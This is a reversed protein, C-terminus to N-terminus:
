GWHNVDGVDNQAFDVQVDVSAEALVAGHPMPPLPTGPRQVSPFHRSRPRCQENLLLTVRLM